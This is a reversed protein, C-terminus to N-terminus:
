VLDRGRSPHSEAYWRRYVLNASHRVAERLSTGGVPRVSKSKARFVRWYESVGYDKVLRWSGAVQPGSVYWLPARRRCARTEVVNKYLSRRRSM